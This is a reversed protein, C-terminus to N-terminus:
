LGNLINWSNFAGIFTMVAWFLRLVINTVDDNRWILFLFVFALTAILVFSELVGM